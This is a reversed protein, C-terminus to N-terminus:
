ESKIFRLLRSEDKLMFLTKGELNYTEIQELAELFANEPIGECYRKSSIIKGIAITNGSIVYQGQIVNCGTFGSFIQDKEKIEIYPIGDKFNEESVSQENLAILKWRGVISFNSEDGEQGSLANITFQLVIIVMLINRYLIRM